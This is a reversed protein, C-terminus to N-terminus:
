GRKAPPIEINQGRLSLFLGAVLALDLLLSFRAVYDRDLADAARRRGLDPDGARHGGCRAPGLLGPKMAFRLDGWAIGTDAIPLPARPLPGIVAMDGRLVNLLQPLDVLGSGEVLDGLGAMLRPFRAKRGADPATRFSLRRFVRGKMGRCPRAVLPGQGSAFAVALALGAMLMGLAILAVFAFARDSASKVALQVPRAPPNGIPRTRSRGLGKFAPAKPSMPKSSMPDDVRVVANLAGPPRRPAKGRATIRRPSIDEFM